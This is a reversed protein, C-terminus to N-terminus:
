KTIEKVKVALKLHEAIKNKDTMKAFPLMAEGSTELVVQSKPADMILQFIKLDELTELNAMKSFKVIINASQRYLIKRMVQTDKTEEFEYKLRLLHITPCSMEWKKPVKSELRSVLSDCTSPVFRRTVKEWWSQTKGDQLFIFFMILGATLVPYKLAKSWLM